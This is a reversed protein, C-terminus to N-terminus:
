RALVERSGRIPDYVDANVNVNVPDKVAVDVHVQDGRTSPPIPAPCSM